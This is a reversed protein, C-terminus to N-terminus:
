NKMERLMAEALETNGLQGLQKIVNLQEDKARNQSLKYKAQVDSIEIDIGVIAKLMRTDFDPQWPQPFESEYVESLHKVTNALKDEDQFSTAKGYVHVAQYNWTPVGAKEYWSPSIYGHPGSFIALVEQDSIQQWQPNAKAVHCQLVNNERDFLFPLHSATIRGKHQSILEGFSYQQILEFAQDDKPLFHKPTYM